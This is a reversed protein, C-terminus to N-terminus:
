ATDVPKVIYSNAGESYGAVLDKEEKSSTLLVVPLMKTLENARIEKLVEHGNKKPLKIDLLVVQPLDNRDRSSYKGRCFLYDLAESGDRVVDVQNKIKGRELARLTLTEDMKNDEVLLIRKNNDM